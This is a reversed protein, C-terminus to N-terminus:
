VDPLAERCSGFMPLAERVSGSKRVLRESMRSSRGVVNLCEQPDVSWESVEPLAERCSGSM